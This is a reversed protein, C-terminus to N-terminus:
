LPQLVAEVANIIRQLYAGPSTASFELMATANHSPRRRRGSLQRLILGMLSKGRLLRGYDGRIADRLAFPYAESHACTCHDNFSVPGDFLENPHKDYGNRPDVLHRSLALAYWKVFDDLEALFATREAATLLSEFNGDRYCDNEISYGDTFILEPAVKDTPISGYIWKDKDAIFIFTVDAPLESRRDFVALVKDRGGAPFVSVGFDAFVQELKRLVVVDDKGETVVTPLSTRKLTAILEDPSFDVM